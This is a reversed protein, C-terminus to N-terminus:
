ASMQTQIRALEDILEQRTRETTGRMLMSGALNGHTARHSVESENGIRQTWRVQVTGGRTQKPLLALQFGNPFEIRSIRSEINEPSADFEEGAAVVDSGAYGAVVDEIAPAEPVQTRIPDSEPRFMGITRNSPRLYLEAARAVDDVTAERLRDRHIFMLRWDGSAAWETLGIGIQES